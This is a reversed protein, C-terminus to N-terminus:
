TTEDEVTAASAAGAWGPDRARRRCWWRLTMWAPFPFFLGDDHPLDIFMMPILANRLLLPTDPFPGRLRSRPHRGSAVPVSDRGARAFARILAPEGATRWILAWQCPPADLIPIYM